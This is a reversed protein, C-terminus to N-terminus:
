GGAFIHGLYKGSLLHRGDDIARNLIDDLAQQLDRPKAVNGDRCAFDVFRDFGKDTFPFTEDSMAEGDNEATHASILSARKEGDIWQTFLLTTFEKAESPGFNQLLIYHDTGFRNRIQEQSLADPMDDPDRFSASVIFGVEKTQRDALIKFANVWHAIGDGNTVATLKTAEDLLLVLVKDDIDRSLRGLMRLVSVLQNSQDM